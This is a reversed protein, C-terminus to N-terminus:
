FGWAEWLLFNAVGGGGSTWTITINTADMTAVGNTSASGAIIQLNVILATDIGPLLVPGTSQYIFLVQQNTGDYTGFSQAFATSSANGNATIKIHAPTKGLGHPIVTTGTTAGALVGSNYNLTVLGTGGHAIDLVGTIQSAAIPLTSISNQTLFKNSTSPTGLGGGGQSAAKINATATYYFEPDFDFTTTNIFNGIVRETTGSSTNVTGGSNRVYGLAGASGGSQNTDIGKRLVGGSIASGATGAGQAIGLQVDNVTIATSADAKWWRGDATKLYLVQGVSVTEGATGNEILSSTSVPGGNVVSLVWQKNAADTNNIPDPVAPSTLFTWFGTIIEDDSRSTLRDYFGSTNSIIFNSSGAHTKSLGATQTYPSLFLVNHVGTLTATGNANQIIGSFSIQEELTSEGPQLTGFGIEGFDDMTLPTGDISTFSKLTLTTAGAIAGAGALSFPQVQAFLFQNSM